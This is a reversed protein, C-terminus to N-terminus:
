SCGSLSSTEVESKSGDHDARLGSSPRNINEAKSKAVVIARVDSTRQRSLSGLKQYQYHSLTTLYHLLEIESSSIRM